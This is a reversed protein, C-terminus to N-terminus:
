QEFDRRNHRTHGLDSWLGCAMVNTIAGDIRRYDGAKVPKVNERADTDLVANEFCFITVENKALVINGTEVGKEFFVTPATFDGYTQGFPTLPDSGGLRALYNAFERWKYDDYGIKEVALRRSVEYIYQAVVDYDVIVGHTLEMEGSDIWRQYIGANPHGSHIKGDFPEDELWVTDGVTKWVTPGGDEDRGYMAADEETQAWVSIGDPLFYKTHTWIQRLDERYIATTVATFDWKQALDVAIMARVGSGVPMKLPDWEVMNRAVTQPKIWARSVEADFINLQKTRFENLYLRDVKAKAWEREYFDSQVTRGLMPHVKHWVAPDDEKDDIDPCFLMVQVDDNMLLGALIKKYGDLSSAFPGHVHKSATTIQFTLPEEHTGQGSELTNRSESGSKSPTDAFSASEDEIAMSPKLGNLADPNDAFVNVSAAGDLEDEYTLQERNFKLRVRELEPTNAVLDKMATKIMNFCIKAQKSTTSVVDVEADYPGFFFEVVALGAILTTKGFKRPVMWVVQRTVRQLVKERVVQHHDNTRERVVWKVLGFPVAVMFVQVPELAIRRLATGTKYRLTELIHIVLRARKEHWEYRDLMEYFRVVAAIEWVNHEDPHKGVHQMYKKIREDTAWVRRIKKSRTRILMAIREVMMKRLAREEDREAETM